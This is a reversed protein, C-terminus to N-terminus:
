PRQLGRVGTLSVSRVETADSRERLTSDTGLSGLSGSSHEDLLVVRSQVGDVEVTLRSRFAAELDTESQEHSGVIM